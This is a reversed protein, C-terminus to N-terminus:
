PDVRERLKEIEAQVGRRHEPCLGHSETPDELPETEAMLAPKGEKLCWACLLKM